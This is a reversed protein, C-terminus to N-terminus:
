IEAKVRKLPSTPMIGSRGGGGAGAEEDSDGDGYNKRKKQGRFRGRAEVKGEAPLVRTGAFIVGEAGGRATMVPHTRGPLVQWKRVRTEHVTPALVMTPDGVADQDEMVGEGEGENMWEAKRTASYCDALEIVSERNQSYAVIQASGKLLPITHRLIGKLDMFAAILLGDFGGKQAEAVIRSTKEWRRYKRWYAARKGGKITALTEASIEEPKELSSDTNPDVLQLWNLTRLHTHLPHSASPSNTDYSFYKLLSLNPQENPHILTITNATPLPTDPYRKRAADEERSEESETPMHELLGLREAIASVLLGGSEDIVLYRGGYHVNGLSLMVAITENRMELIKMPEKTDLLYTILSAVTLPLATFRRLFKKTKRLTYKQLAFPTKQHIATHSDLLRQILDRGSGTGQKKLQEIEVWSLKQSLPDDITEKNTRMVEGGDEESDGAIELDYHGTGEAEADEGGGLIDRTVEEASVLRLGAAPPDLIDFTLNYPRYLLANSPFSGFKGLSITVDPILRVVRPAGSPLRLLLYTYPLIREEPM